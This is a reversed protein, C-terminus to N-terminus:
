PIKQMRKKNEHKWNLLLVIWFVVSCSFILYTTTDGFEFLLNYWAHLTVAVVLSKTRNVSEGLLYSLLSNPLIFLLPRLIRASISGSLTRTTFHWLEWMAGIILYQKWKPLHNLQDQLFGRWGLEEGLTFFFIGGFYITMNYISVGNKGYNGFFLFVAMPIGWFLCSKFASSGFFHITKKIRNKFIYSTIIAAIGPGWMILSTKLIPDLSLNNWSIPYVDRWFFFPWSLLCAILYFFIIPKYKQYFQWM